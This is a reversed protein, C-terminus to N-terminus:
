EVYGLARLRELSERDRSELAQPVVRPEIGLSWSRLEGLLRNRLEPRTPTLDILEGPDTELDFLEASVDAKWILKFDGTRIMRMQHDVAASDFDPFWKELLRIGNIPRENEAFVAPRDRIGPEDLTLGELGEDPMPVGAVDLVTPVIDILSVLGGNREM